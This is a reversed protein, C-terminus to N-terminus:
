VAQIPGCAAPLSRDYKGQSMVGHFVMVLGTLPTTNALESSDLTYSQSMHVAGHEDALPYPQLDFAIPGIKTIAESVTIIHSSNADAATPCTVTGGSYGHIHQFHKQNPVLGTVNIMVVLNYGSVQFDVTGSVGSGNLPDVRATYHSTPVQTIVPTPVTSVVSGCASLTLALLASLVFAPRKM